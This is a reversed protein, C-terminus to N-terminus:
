FVTCQGSRAQDAGAVAATGVGHASRQMQRKYVDLHTYSVATRGIRCIKQGIEDDGNACCPKQARRAVKGGAEREGKRKGRKRIRAPLVGQRRKKGKGPKNSDRICM